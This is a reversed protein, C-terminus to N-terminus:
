KTLSRRRLAAHPMAIADILGPSAWARAPGNCPSARLRPEICSRDSRHGGPHCRSLFRCGAGAGLRDVVGTLDDPRRPYRPKLEDLTDAVIDAVALNRFWKQNAPIVYWPAVETSCRSLMEEYALMYDDWLKREALDGLRFKWNKDPDDIRAQLRAKQEDRDILLFFKLITTGEDALLREFANIQDYRRSWVEKPVFDHVRVVLVDEYHSRNFIAIEGKGPTRQHVRWLYDHALEVPTPAKFSTVACGMPNFATMVHRVSGDKGAADIGQLVILIPNKPEAWLRDQLDTLRDLGRGLEAESGAKTYGHTEAPDIDALRVRSGPKVRLAERLSRSQAAADCDERRTTTRLADLIARRDSRLLEAHGGDGAGLRMRDEEGAFPDLGVVRQDDRVRGVRGIGGSRREVRGLGLVLLRDLGGDGGELDGPRQGAYSRPAIRRFMLAPILARRSSSPRSMARSAPLGIRSESTSTSRAAIVNRRPASSASRITPSVIGSSRMGADFPRTPIVRRKGIPGIAPILGNLKGSFRAACLTEGAIALPLGITRLGGDFSGSTMSVTASIMSSAPAGAPETLTRGILRSSPSRITDSSRNLSRVNVPLGDTPQRIFSRAPLFFTTSSSPPLAPTM